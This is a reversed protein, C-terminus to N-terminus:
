QRRRVWRAYPLSFLLALMIPYVPVAFRSAGNIGTIFALYVVPALAIIWTLDPRRTFAWLVLGLARLGNGIFIVLLAALLGLPQRLLYQGLAPYGGASFQTLLGGEPSAVGAFEFLDFRGPDLFFNVMGKLHFKAYATSHEALIVSVSDQLLRQGPAFEEAQVQQWIRDIRADAATEGVEQVLLFRSTYLLLSRGQISSVHFYGTRYQNWGMYGILVALPVLGWVAWRWSRQRFALFLNWATAPFIALYLVPKTLFGIALAVQSFRWSRESGNQVALTQTWVWGMLLSQFLIETMILNAYIWQAPYCAVGLVWAWVPAQKGSLHLVWRSALWLNFVALASQVATTLAHWGAASGTLLLFLPYFPPRKTLNETAFGRTLDGCYTLGNQWLNHAVSLYEWSDVIFFRGQIAQYLWFLFAWASVFALPFRRTELTQVLLTLPKRAM